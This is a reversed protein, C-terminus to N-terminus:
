GNQHVGHSGVRARLLHAGEDRTAGNGTGLFTFLKNFYGDALGPSLGQEM